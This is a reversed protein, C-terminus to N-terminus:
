LGKISPFDGSQYNRAWQNIKENSSGVFSGAIYRPSPFPEGGLLILRCGQESSLISESGATLVTLAFQELELGDLQATGELLYVAREACKSPIPIKGHASVQIDAFVTEVFCTTPATEGWATGMIVTARCGLTEIVPLSAKHHLEFAPTMDERDDPLALWMQIFYIPLTASQDDPDPLEEHTIGSGATMLAIDGLSIASIHGASDRHFGNGALLYTFTSLGAHPHEGVGASPSNPVELPGGQDMFIFPGVMQRKPAPLLRRVRMSGVSEIKPQIVQSIAMHGSGMKYKPLMAKAAQLNVIIRVWHAIMCRVFAVRGRGNLFHGVILGPSIQESSISTESSRVFIYM